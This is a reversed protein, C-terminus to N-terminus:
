QQPMYCENIRETVLRMHWPCSLQLTQRAPFDMGHIELNDKASTLLTLSSKVHQPFHCAILFRYYRRSKCLEENSKCITTLAFMNLSIDGIEERKKGERGRPFCASVPPDLVVQIGASKYRM